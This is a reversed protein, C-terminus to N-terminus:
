FGPQGTLTITCAARIVDDVKETGGWKSFFGQFSYTKSQANSDAPFKLRLDLTTRNVFFGFVTEHAPDAPDWFLDFTLDGADLLTPFKDRWPYGTSHSTVDQVTLSFSPGNISSVNAITVFTEPSAGDGYQLLTNIAAVARPISM